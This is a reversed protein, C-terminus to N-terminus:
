DSDGADDQRDAERAAAAAAVVGALQQAAVAADTPDGCLPGFQNLAIAVLDPSTSQGGFRALGELTHKRAGDLYLLLTPTAADPFGPMCESAVCRVFKTAPYRPALEALCANMVASDRNASYLCCVVWAGAAANTVQAVYDSRRIEDYGGFRPRAAGAALESMRRRRYEELFRDDAFDDEAQELGEADLGDLRATGQAPEEEAAYKDPKWM